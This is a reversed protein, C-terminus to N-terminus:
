EFWDEVVGEKVSRTDSGLIRDFSRSQSTGAEQKPNSVVSETGSTIALGRHPSKSLRLPSSSISSPNATPPTLLPATFSSTSDPYQLRRLSDVMMSQAPAQPSQPLRPPKPYQYQLPSPQYFSPVPFDFSPYIPTPRQITSPGYHSPIFTQSRVPYQYQSYQPAPIPYQMRELTSADIRSTLKLEFMTPNSECDSRNGEMEEQIIGPHGPFWNPVSARRRKSERADLDIQVQLPPHPTPESARRRKSSYPFTFDQYVVPAFVLTSPPMPQTQYLTQSSSSASGEATSDM